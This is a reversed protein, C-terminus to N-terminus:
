EPLGTYRMENTAVFGMSTYLPRGEDSAHLVLRVLRERKVWAIVAEMLARAIGRRRWEPNVYMNLVIGERGSAIRNTGPEPRPFLPRVLLGAGGVPPGGEAPHAMWGVYLGSPLAEALFVKSTERLRGELSPELHGMDRFMGVRHEAIHPIDTIEARRITFPSPTATM